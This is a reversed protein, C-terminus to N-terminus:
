CKAIMVIAFLFIITPGDDIKIKIDTKELKCRNVIKDMKIRPIRYIFRSYLILFDYIYFFIM